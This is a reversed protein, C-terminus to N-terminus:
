SIPTPHNSGCGGVVTRLAQEGTVLTWISRLGCLRGVGAASTLCTFLRGTAEHHGRSKLAVAQLCIIWAGFGLEVPSSLWSAEVGEPRLKGMQSIPMM